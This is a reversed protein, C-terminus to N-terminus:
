SRFATELPEETVPYGLGDPITVFRRGGREIVSPQVLEITRKRAFALVEDATESVNLLEVNRVTPFIMKRENAERAKLAAAPTIWLAETAEDGDERAQQGPPAAAAFFWTDYRRHTAAAPPSWRAFLNLSDVALRLNEQKVLELFKRDDAEVAKRWHDVSQVFADEVFASDGHRRALLIGTEEFAERIAAVRPAAEADPAHDLGDCYERWAPDADGGDVRGGPFVLAGGA